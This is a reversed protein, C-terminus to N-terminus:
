AERGMLSAYAREAVDRVLVKGSKVAPCLEEAVRREVLAEPQRHQLCHLGARGNNRGTHGAERFDASVCDLVNIREIDHVDASRRAVSSSRIWLRPLPPPTRPSPSSDM